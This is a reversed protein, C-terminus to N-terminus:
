ACTVAPAESGVRKPARRTGLPGRRPHATKGRSDASNGTDAAIAWGKSVLSKKISAPKDCSEVGDEETAIVTITTMMDATTGMMTTAITDRGWTSEELDSRLALRHSRQLPFSLCRQLSHSYSAFPLACSIRGARLPRSPVTEALTAGKQERVTAFLFEGCPSAVGRGLWVAIRLLVSHEPRGISLDAENSRLAASRRGIEEEFYSTSSRRGTPTAFSLAPAPEGRGVLAAPLSTRAHRSHPIGRALSGGNKVLAAVFYRGRGRSLHEVAAPALTRWCHVSGGAGRNVASLPPLKQLMEHLTQSRNKVVAL